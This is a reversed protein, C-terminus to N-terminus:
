GNWLNYAYRQCNRNGGRIGCYLCNNKCINSIEILGRVYVSNGYIAKRIKVANERLYEKVGPSYGRILEEYEALSLSHEHCLKRALDFVTDNM